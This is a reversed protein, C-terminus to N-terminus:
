MTISVESRCVRFGLSSSKGNPASGSRYFVTCQQPDDLWSGGRKVHADGINPGHPNTQAGSPLSPSYYDWCWEAVNGCMDYLGLANPKKTAVAHTTIASNEGYWAVENINTSGSYLGTTMTKAERAAYEWEAETPLRFGNATFNCVIRKWVPSSPEFGSLDTAGGISYCPILGSMLSLINCYIIAECWNVCEVPRDPGVLKSPNKGMVFSYQSQTVPVESMYYSVLTILSNNTGSGMVFQGNPILVMKPRKDLRIKPVEEERTLNDGSKVVKVPVGCHSCFKDVTSLTNGCEVCSRLVELTGVPFGCNFCFNSEEPLIKGCKVCKVCKEM